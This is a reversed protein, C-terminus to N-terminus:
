MLNPVLQGLGAPVAASASAPACMARPSVASTTITAAPGSDLGDRGSERPQVRERALDEVRGAPIM